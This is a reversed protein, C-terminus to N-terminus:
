GIDFRPPKIPTVVNTSKSKVGLRPPSGFKNYPSPPPTADTDDDPFLRTGKISLEYADSETDADGYGDGDAHNAIVSHPIKEDLRFRPPTTLTTSYNHSKSSPTNYHPYRLQSPTDRYLFSQTQSPQAPSGYSKIQLFSEPPIISPSTKSSELFTGPKIQSVDHGKLAQKKKELESTVKTYLGFLKEGFNTPDLLEKQLKKISEKTGKDVEIGEFLTYHKEGYPHIQGDSAKPAEKTLLYNRYETLLPIIKHYYNVRMASMRARNMMGGRKTKLHHRHCHRHRHRRRKTNQHRRSKCRTHRTKIKSVRM